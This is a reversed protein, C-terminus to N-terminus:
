WLCFHFTRNNSQLRSTCSGGMMFCSFVLTQNCSFLLYKPSLYRKMPLWISNMIRNHGETIFKVSLYETDRAILELPFSELHCKQIKVDRIIVGRSSCARKNLLNSYFAELLITTKTSISENTRSSIIKWQMAITLGASFAWKLQFLSSNGGNLFLILWTQSFNASHNQLLERSFFM